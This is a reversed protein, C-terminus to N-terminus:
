IISLNSVKSVDRLLIALKRLLMTVYNNYFNTFNDINILFNAVNNFTINYYYLIIIHM